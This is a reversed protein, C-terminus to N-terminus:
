SNSVFVLETNRVTVFTRKCNSNTLLKTAKKAIDRGGGGDREMATVEHKCPHLRNLEGTLTCHCSLNIARLASHKPYYQPKREVRM